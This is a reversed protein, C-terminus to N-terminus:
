VFWGRLTLITKVLWYTIKAALYMFKAVKILPGLLALFKSLLYFLALLTM